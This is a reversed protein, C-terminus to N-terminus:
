TCTQFQSKAHKFNHNPKRDVKKQKLAKKFIPTTERCIPPYSLSSFAALAYSKAASFYQPVDVVVLKGTLIKNKYVYSSLYCKQTALM